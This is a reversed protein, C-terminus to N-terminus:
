SQFRYITKESQKIVKLTQLVVTYMCLDTFIEVIVGKGPSVDGITEAAM